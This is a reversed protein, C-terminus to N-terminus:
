SSAILESLFANLAIGLMSIANYFWGTNNKNLWPGNLKSSIMM